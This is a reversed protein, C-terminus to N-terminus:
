SPDVRHAPGRLERVRGLEEPKPTWVLRRIGDKLVSVNFNFLLGTTFGTLKMYTLLQAKHVSLVTEVAKLEVVVRDEVVFDVRFATQISLAKYSIPISYQRQFDLGAAQLEYAFCVDYVSELLGPGTGRHAEIACGIIRESLPDDIEPM